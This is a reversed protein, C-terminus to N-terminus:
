RVESPSRPRYRSITKSVVEDSELGSGIAGVVTAMSTAFWAIAAYDWVGAPHGLSDTMTQDPVVLAMSALVAIYLVLYGFALGLLLTISTAANARRTFEPDHSESPQEWLSHAVM